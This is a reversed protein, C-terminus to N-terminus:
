WLWGSWGACAERNSVSRAHAPYTYTITDTAFPSGTSALAKTASRSPPGKRGSASSITQARGGANRLPRSPQVSIDDTDADRVEGCVGVVLPHEGHQRQDDRSSDARRSPARPRPPTRL